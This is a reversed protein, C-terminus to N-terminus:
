ATSQEEAPILMQNQSFLTLIKLGMSLVIYNPFSTAPLTTKLLLQHFTALLNRKSFSFDIEEEVAKKSMLRTKKINDLGIAGVNFVRESSEGLQIVRKRYIETSTFHLQSMKTISHRIADDILGLTIEGGHIHAIPIRSIMAAQAAAFAEFRDGLIVLVDPKLKGLTEAIGMLGVGVSKCIGVASDSSLLMEVKADIRFGDKVIQKYTLGFEPSLHMGSVILLLKLDNDNKVREMLPKLLGYEARTGTFICIKKKVMDGEIYHLEGRIQM